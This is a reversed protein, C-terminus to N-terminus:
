WITKPHGLPIRVIYRRPLMQMRPYAAQQQQGDFLISTSTRSKCIFSQLNNETTNLDKSAFNTGEDSDTGKINPRNAFASQPVQDSSYRPIIDGDIQPTWVCSFWTTNAIANPASVFDNGLYQLADIEDSCGATHTFVLFSPQCSRDM